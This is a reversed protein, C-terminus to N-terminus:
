SLDIGLTEDLPALVVAADHEDVGPANRPPLCLGECGQERDRGACSVRGM